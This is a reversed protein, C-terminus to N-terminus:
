TQDTSPGSASGSHNPNATGPPEPEPEPEASKELSTPLDSASSSVKRMHDLLEQILQNNRQHQNATERDYMENLKNMTSDIIREVGNKNLLFMDTDKGVGPAVEARKKSAFTCLLAQPYAFWGAYGLSMFSSSAHVAGIGISLFGIENHCTVFGDNDIHYIYATIDDCGVVIAEIDIKHGQLQSAIDTAISPALEQQRSLYSDLDLGIPSLYIQEAQRTRHNRVHKAYIEAVKGVDEEPSTAVARQTNILAESHVVYSGAALVLIRRTLNNIKLQPREYEFDGRTLM